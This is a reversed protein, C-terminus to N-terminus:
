YHGKKLVTGDIDRLNQKSNSKELHIEVYLKQPILFDFKIVSFMLYTM